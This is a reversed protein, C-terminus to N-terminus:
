NGGGRTRLPGAARLDELTIRRADPPVNVQFAEPAIVDNVRSPEVEIRLDVGPTRGPDSSLRMRAPFTPGWADIQLTLGDFRGARVRWAGDGGVLYIVGGPTTIVLTDDVRSAEGATADTTVCGTVMALLRAPGIRVGVLAEVIEDAREDLVDNDQTLLLTAADARGALVFIDRGAARAQLRIGGDRTVGTVIGVGPVRDDGVRGSLRTTGAFTTAGRCARVAEDLAEAAEPAPSGPGAPPTYTRAACATTTALVALVATALARRPRRGSRAATV